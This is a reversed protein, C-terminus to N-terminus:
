DREGESAPAIDVKTSPHEPESDAKTDFSSYQSPAPAVSDSLRMMFQQMHAFLDQVVDSTIEQFEPFGLKGDAAKDNFRATLTSHDVGGFKMRQLFELMTEFDKQSIQCGDSSFLLFLLKTTMEPKFSRNLCAVALAAEKFDLYGYGDKDLTNFLLLAAPDEPSLRFGQCFEVSELLGDKNRDFTKFKEVAWQVDEIEWSLLENLEGVNTVSNVTKVSYGLKDVKYLMQVDEFMHNTVFLPPEVSAAMAAQVRSGFGDHDQASCEEPTPAIAPIWDVQMRNYVQSLMRWAHFLTGVGPVWGPDYFCHPFRVVVPQVPQMPSFGGRKFTILTPGSSTTGEPFILLPPFGSDPRARNAIQHLATKKGASTYRDVLVLNISKALVNGLFSNALEAKGVCCPLERCLFYLPEVWCVHNSVIVSAAPSCCTGNTYTEELWVYGLCFLICRSIFKVPYLLVRRCGSMPRRDNTAPDISFDMGCTALMCVLVLLLLCLVLLRDRICM